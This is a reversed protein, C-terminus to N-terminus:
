PTKVNINFSYTNLPNTDLYLYVLRNYENLIMTYGESNISYTVFLSDNNILHLMKMGFYSSVTIETGMPFDFEIIMLGHQPDPTYDYSGSTHIILNAADFLATDGIRKIEITLSSVLIQVYLYYYGATHITHYPEAFTPNDYSHQFTKYWQQPTEKSVISINSKHNPNNTEIKYIGAELYIEYFGTNSLYGKYLIPKSADIMVPFDSSPLPFFQTSDKVDMVDFTAQTLQSELQYQLTKNEFTFEFSLEYLMTTESFRIDMTPRIRYGGKKTPYLQDLTDYIQDLSADTFFNELDGKLVYHMNNKKTIVLSKTQIEIEGVVDNNQDIEVYFLKGEYTYSNVQYTHLEGDIKTQIYNGTNDEYRVYYPDRQYEGTITEKETSTRTNFSVKAMGSMTFTYQNVTSEFAQIKENLEKGYLGLSITSCGSMIFIFVLALMMKKM